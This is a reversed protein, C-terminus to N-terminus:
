GALVRRSSALEMWSARASTMRRSMLRPISRGVAESRRRTRRVAARLTLNVEKSGFGVWTTTSGSETLITM